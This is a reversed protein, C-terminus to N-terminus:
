APADGTDTVGLRELALWLRDQGWTTWDGVRFCPVGWLGQESMAARNAEVQERWQADSLAEDVIAAVGATEAVERIGADSGVDIAKSWIGEYAALAFDHAPRTGLIRQAYTFVALCKSVGEGLPDCVRGYPIGLRDAERKADRAIYMVKDKPVPLGRTVMPLLPRFEIEPLRDRLAHLRAIALYSYPSRFSFFCQLTSGTAAISAPRRPAVVFPEGAGDAALHDLLHPLRDIGWYWIGAYSLTAGMYHKARRLTQYNAELTPRVSQGSVTGFEKVATALADGDDDWLADGLTVAARLWEAAPREALLVANVRRVRDEAPPKPDQPFRIDRRAALESADRMAFALRKQPEPDADAGPPPVVVPKLTIAFREVVPVLAQALLHSYPDDVQHYFTVVRDGRSVARGIAHLSRKLGPGRNLYASIAAGRVKVRLSM